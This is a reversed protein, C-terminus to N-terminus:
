KPAKSMRVDSAPSSIASSSSPWSTSCPAPTPAAWRTNARPRRGPRRTLASVSGYLTRTLSFIASEPTSSSRSRKSTSTPISQVSSRARRACRRSRRCGSGSPSALEGGVQDRAGLPQPDIPRAPTPTSLTSTSAAVLRPMTTALAGCDFMTAAASCVMASISASARLMGCACAASSPRGSPASSTRRADLEVLLREADEAEAADALEHGRARLAEAHVDDAKSGNTDASRKRSSPRRAPPSRPRREVRSASKM